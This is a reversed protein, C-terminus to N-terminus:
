KKKNFKLFRREENELRKLFKHPTPINLNLKIATIPHIFELAIASLFLGKHKLVEGKNGYLNDGLIPTGLSKCHIRLQHTRGTKPSLEILTLFKSQLSPVINLVKYATKSKKEEIPITIEGEGEVKGMLVAQYKKYIEKNEFAQGLRIRARKTKAIILLGSTQNDLRHVPLPWSLQDKKSSPILNYGLTNQITKYQNGSVSIGAPKNIVALYDDEYVIEITLPYEKPPKLNLDILTIVDGGKLWRGGEVIEGNLRLEGNKIAKKIGKRSPIEIM